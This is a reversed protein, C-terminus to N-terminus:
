LWIFAKLWLESYMHYANKLSQVYHRRSCLPTYLRKEERKGDRQSIVNCSNSCGVGLALCRPLRLCLSLQGAGQSLM